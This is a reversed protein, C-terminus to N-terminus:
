ARVGKMQNTQPFLKMFLNHTTLMGVIRGAEDKVLLLKSDLATLNEAIHLQTCQSEVTAIPRVWQQWNEEGSFVMPRIDLVGIYHGFGDRVPYRSHRYQKMLQLVEERSMQSELCVMKEPPIMIETVKDDKLEPISHLAQEQIPSIHKEERAISALANMENLAEEGATNEEAGGGEFPRNILHVLAILPSLLVVAYKLLVATASMVLTNFRVGLTKPLIETYQVMLVTFGLSFLWIYDSGFLNDFQAGAIAAGFTHAATNLILIVAIPKEINKKLETCIKGTQPRQRTLLALKGPNLSLIAAEMVSCLFSVGMAVAVALILTLM